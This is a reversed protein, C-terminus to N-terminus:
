EGSTTHIAAHTLPATSNRTNGQKYQNTTVHSCQPRATITVIIHNSKHYQKLFEKGGNNKHLKTTSALLCCEWAIM